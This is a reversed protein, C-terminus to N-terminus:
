LAASPTPTPTPQLEPTVEPPPVVAIPPCDELEPAAKVEASVEAGAGKEEPHVPVLTSVLEPQHALPLAKPKTKM